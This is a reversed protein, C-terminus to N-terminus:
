HWGPALKVFFTTNKAPDAHLSFLQHKVRHPWLDTAPIGKFIGM